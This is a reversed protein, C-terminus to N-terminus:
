QLPYDLGDLLIFAAWYKPDQYPKYKGESGKTKSTTAKSRFNGGSGRQEIRQKRQEIAWEIKDVEYDRVYKQAEKLAKLKSMKKILWNEYFQTMLLQTAYDDVKWLSMIISNVGAKKFGRQLGFVGDGKLEGLGSECASLVVMDVNKLDLQAIEAATLIGDNYTSTNPLGHKLTMNAGAFLLGSRTMSKDEGVISERESKMKNKGEYYFGHTGIQILNVDSGSMQKFSVETGLSDAFMKTKIRARRMHDYISEAEALTGPLFTAKNGKSISISDSSWPFYTFSRQWDSEQLTTDITADYRLGGYISGNKITVKKKEKALERTSSLRYLNYRDSILRTSDEYDPLSEIAINYLEGTPAFYITIAGNLVSSLKGWITKALHTNSYLNSTSLSEGKTLKALVVQKPTFWQPRIVYAVYITTDNDTTFSNFEIAAENSKLTKQVDTWGISMDRTFDGYENSIRNLRQEHAFLIRKVSDLSVLRKENPVKHLDTIWKRYLLITDFLESAEKNNSERIISSLSRDTSLLFNKSLLSANYAMNNYGINKLKYCKDPISQLFFGSYNEWVKPMLSQPTNIILRQLTPIVKSLAISDNKKAMDDKGIKAYCSALLHTSGIIIEDDINEKDTTIENLQKICKDYEGNNYDYLSCNMIIAFRSQENINDNKEICKRAKSMYEDAVKEIESTTMGFDEVYGSFSKLLLAVESSTSGYQLVTDGCSKFTQELSMIRALIAKATDRNWLYAMSLVDWSGAVAYSSDGYLDIKYAIEVKCDSIANDYDGIRLNYRVRADYLNVAALTYLFTSYDPVEDNLDLFTSEMENLILPINGLCNLSEFLYVLEALCTIYTTKRIDKKNNKLVYFVDQASKISEEDLGISQYIRPLQSYTEIANIIVETPMKELQNILFRRVEASKERDFYYLYDSLMRITNYQRYEKGWEQSKWFQFANLTYYKMKNFDSREYYIESLFNLIHLYHFPDDDKQAEEEPLSKLLFFLASDKQGMFYYSSWLMEICRSYEYGKNVNNKELTNMALYAYKIAEAKNESYYFAMSTWRAISAYREWDPHNASDMYHIAHEGALCAVMYEEEGMLHMIFGEETEPDFELQQANALQTAFLLLNVLLFKYKM